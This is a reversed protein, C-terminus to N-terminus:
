PPPDGFLLLKLATGAHRRSDRSLERFREQGGRLSLLGFLPWRILYGLLVILDYLRVGGGGNRRVYFARPGKLAATLVM